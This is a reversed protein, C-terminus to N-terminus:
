GPFLGPILLHATCHAFVLFTMRTRLAVVSMAVGPVVFRTLMFKPDFVGGAPGLEHSLSFLAGTALVAVVTAIRRDLHKTAVLLIGPLVVLRFAIEEVLGAALGLMLGPRGSEESPIFSPLRSGVLARMAFAIMTAVAVGALAWAIDARRVADFWKWWAAAVVVAAGVIPWVNGALLQVLPDAAALQGEPTSQSTALIALLAAFVLALVAAVSVDRVFADRDKGAFM